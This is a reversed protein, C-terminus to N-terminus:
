LGMIKKMDELKAMHLLQTEKIHANRIHINWKKYQNKHSRCLDILFLKM